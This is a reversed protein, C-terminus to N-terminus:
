EKYPNKITGIKDIPFLRFVVKGVIEDKKVFGVEPYRSDISVRRNDGMVFYEDKPVILDEIQGNTYQDKTYSDDIMKGNVFVKGDLVSIKDGPLGIVRKILLKNSGDQGPLSSQFVIVDGEQPNGRFLHYTQKNVFVYDNEIFNPEMSSEKVITPKFFQMVILAIVVAILIDKIWEKILEKKEM